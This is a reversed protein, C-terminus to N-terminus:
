PAAALRQRHVGGAVQVDQIFSVDLAIVGFYGGLGCVGQIPVVGGVVDIEGLLVGRRVKDPRLAADADSGIGSGNVVPILLVICVALLIGVVPGDTATPRVGLQAGSHVAATEADAIRDIHRAITPDTVLAGYLVDPRRLTDGGHLLGGAQSHVRMRRRVIGEAALEVVGLHHLRLEVVDMNHGLAPAHYQNPTLIDCLALEEIPIVGQM